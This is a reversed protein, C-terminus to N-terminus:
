RRTSVVITGSTGALTGFRTAADSASLYTVSTVDTIPIQRLASVDGRPTGDLFVTVQSNSTVSGQGRPRLWTSRLREIARYLDSEQTDLLQEQTLVNRDGGGGGGGTGASACAASVVVM